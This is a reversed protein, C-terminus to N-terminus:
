RALAESNFEWLDEISGGGRAIIICDPSSKLDNEIHNLASIIQKASGEGQVRAPFISLKIHPASKRFVGLMDQLAAASESTIIAIHRPFDPLSSKNEQDFLGDTELRKKLAEFQLFLDGQGATKISAAIFQYRGQPAYVSLKGRCIVKAGAQPRTILSSAQSRWMAAPIIAKNDKLSFYIHGSSHYKIESIEGELYFDPIQYELLNKIRHTIESVSYIEDM